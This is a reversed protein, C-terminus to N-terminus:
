MSISRKTSVPVSATETAVNVNRRSTNPSIMGFCYAIRWASRIAAKQTRRSSNQRITSLGNEASITAPDRTNPSRRVRSRRASESSSSRVTTSDAAAEPSSSRSSADITSPMM